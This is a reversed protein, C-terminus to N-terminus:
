GIVTNLAVAATGKFTLHGSTNKAIFHTISVKMSLLHVVQSNLPCGRAAIIKQDYYHTWLFLRDSVKAALAILEVPNLMHYLVGSAVCIDFRKQNARLYDIFDGCLFSVRKLELLEKILLCKLYARTNAEIAVIKTAGFRELMYTHGAELPGLELVTMGEINDLQTNIWEIRPDEFLPLPGASLGSLPEPLKSAWEGKFIDLANQPSPMSAVYNDLANVRAERPLVARLRSKVASAYKAIM